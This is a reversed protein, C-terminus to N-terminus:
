HEFLRSLLVASHGECRFTSDVLEYRGFVRTTSVSSSVNASSSCTTCFPTLGFFTSVSLFEPTKSKPHRLRMGSATISRLTRSFSSNQRTLNRNESRQRWCTQACSGQFLLNRGCVSQARDSGGWQFSNLYTLPASSTYQDDNEGAEMVVREGTDLGRFLQTTQSTGALKYIELTM